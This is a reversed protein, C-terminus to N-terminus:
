PAGSTNVWLDHGDLTHMQVDETNQGSVVEGSLVRRSVSHEESKPHGQEDLVRLRRVREDLSRAFHDPDAEAGMLDRYAQNIRRVRGQADHVLVGDAMAEFIAELEAAQEDVQQELQRRETVDRTILVTGTVQGDPAHMPAGTISIWLARGDLTRVGAEMASAGALIEGRLVRWHPWQELPLPQGQEDLLLLRQAREELSRATYDGDTDFGLLHSLATNARAFRGSMDYVGVGDAQAEFIAEFESAQEALHAEAHKLASVDTAIGLVSRLTGDDALEPVFRVHLSRMEGNPAQVETDFTRPMRTEVAERQAQAWPEYDTGRTGLEGFTKGFWQEEPIGFLETGAQNVYLYRGSPDLRAIFDPSHEALTRFEQSLAGLMAMLMRERELEDRARRQETVDQLVVMGSPSAAETAEGPMPVVQVHFTYQAHAVDMEMARGLLAAEYHPALTAAMARPLAEWVTRGEMEEPTLDLVQLGPGDAFSHRLEEDFLLVASHPLNRVVMRSRAESTRLAQDTTEREQIQAALLLLPVATIILFLQLALVSPAPQQIASLGATGAAGTITLVTVVTMASAIGRPGFRVAAWVLVPMPLYFIFDALGLASAARGFILWGVALLAACLLLAEGARWRSSPRLGRVGAGAWLVIAPAVILSALADGLFWTRWASWYADGLAARSAAGVFASLLPAALVACALYVGMARLTDFRLPRPVFRRVLAAALLAKLVDNLWNVPLLWTPIGPAFVPTMRILFTMLLVLWWRRPTTVLLAALLVADPPWLPAPVPLANGYLYACLYGAAFVLLPWAARWVLRRKEHDQLSLVQTRWGAM